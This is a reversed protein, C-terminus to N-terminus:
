HGSDVGGDSFAYTSLCVPCHSDVNTPKGDPGIEPQDCFQILSFAAGLAYSSNLGRSQILTISSTEAAAEVEAKCPGNPAKTLLHLCENTTVDEGCYCGLLGDVHAPTGPPSVYACKSKRICAMLESCLEAKAVGQAAGETANGDLAYCGTLFDACYASNHECTECKKTCISSCGDGDKTNGDDCEEGPDIHNNGCLSGAEVAAEPSADPQTGGAGATNDGGASADSGSAGGGGGMPSGGSGKGATGGAPKGATGSKGGATTDPTGGDAAPEDSGCGTAGSVAFAAVVACGGLIRIARM